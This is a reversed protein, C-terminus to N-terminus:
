QLPGNKKKKVNESDVSVNAVCFKKARSIFHDWKKVEATPLFNTIARVPIKRIVNKNTCTPNFAQMKASRDQSFGSSLPSINLLAAWKMPDVITVRMNSATNNIPKM